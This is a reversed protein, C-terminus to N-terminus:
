TQRRFNGHIATKYMIATTITLFFPFPIYLNYFQVANEQKNLSCGISSITDDIM